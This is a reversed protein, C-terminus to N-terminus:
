NNDLSTSIGYFEMNKSTSSGLATNTKKLIVETPFAYNGFADFVSVNTKTQKGMLLTIAEQHSIQGRKM